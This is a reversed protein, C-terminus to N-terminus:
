NNITIRTHNMTIKIYKIQILKLFDYIIKLIELNLLNITIKLEFITNPYQKIYLLLLKLKDISYDTFKKSQMFIALDSISHDIIIKAFKIQKTIFLRNFNYKNFEIKVNESMIKFMFDIYFTHNYNLVHVNNPNLHNIMKIVSHGKYCCDNIESLINVMLKNIKLSKDLYQLQNSHCKLNKPKIISILKTLNNSLDLINIKTGYDIKLFDQLIDNPIIEIDVILKVHNQTNILIINQDFKISEPIFIKPITKYCIITLDGNINFLEDILSENEFINSYVYIQDNLCYFSKSIYSKHKDNNNFFLENQTIANFIISFENNYKINYKKLLDEIMELM